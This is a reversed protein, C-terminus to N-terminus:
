KSASSALPTINEQILKKMKERFNEESFQDAINSITVRESSSASLAERVKVILDDKDHYQYKIPVFEACGGYDPVVPILGASMAEVISIGFHEGRMTHVYVKSRSMTELLTSFSANPVLTVYDSLGNEHIRKKLMNYYPKNAPILSGIIVLRVKLHKPIDLSIELKKEPSLRSVVLVQDERKNSNLVQKFSKTDVPPAIIAPDAKPYLGVIAKKSFESLTFLTGQYVVKKLRWKMISRYPEFYLRWFLSNQYKSPYDELTLAVSPFYCYTITPIKSSSIHPLADGHTNIMLDVKAMSAPLFTLLRQYIGFISLKFPFLSRLKDVKIERNYALKLKEFDPPQSTILEVEHGMKNLMEIVNVAVREGGGRSNLNHHVVGVRM